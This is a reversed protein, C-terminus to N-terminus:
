KKRFHPFLLFVPPLFLATMMGVSVFYSWAKTYWTILGGGLPWGIGILVFCMYAWKEKRTLPYKAILYLLIMSMVSLWAFLLFPLTFAPEANEPLEKTGYLDTWIMSDLGHWPDFGVFFMLVFCMLAGFGTVIKLYAVTGNFIKESAM